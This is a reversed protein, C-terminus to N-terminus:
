GTATIAIETLKPGVQLAVSLIVILVGSVVLMRPYRSSCGGCPSGAARTPARGSRSSSTRSVESPSTPWCTTSAPRCSRRSGVSRCGPWRRAPLVPRRRRRGMRRGFVM